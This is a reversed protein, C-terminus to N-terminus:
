SDCLETANGAAQVSLVFGNIITPLNMVTDTFLFRVYFM